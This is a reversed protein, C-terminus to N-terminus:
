PRAARVPAGLHGQVRRGPVLQRDPSGKECPWGPSARRARGRHRRGVLHMFPRLDVHRGALGDEAVTPRGRSSCSRRALDLRPPRGRDRGAPGGAARRQGQARHGPRLRGVRDVPKTVLEDLRDLVAARQDPDWLCYTGCTPCCRSRTSTTASSTPCSPTSAGQRRGRRQRRRQGADGAGARAATLLGPVGIYSGSRFGVPDLFRDDLRRYIVHSRVPGRPPACSCGSATSWCTTAGRGAGRGDPPGPLRARLLRRQPHGPDAGRRM